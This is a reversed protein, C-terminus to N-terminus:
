PTCVVFSSKLAALRIGGDDILTMEILAPPEAKKWSVDSLVNISHVVGAESTTRRADHAWFSRQRREHSQYNCRTEIVHWAFEQVSRPVTAQSAFM